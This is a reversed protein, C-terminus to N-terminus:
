ACGTRSKTAGLVILDDVDLVEPLKESGGGSGFFKFVV